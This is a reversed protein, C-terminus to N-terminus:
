KLTESRLPSYAFCVDSKTMTVCCEFECTRSSKFDLKKMTLTVELTIFMVDYFYLTKSTEIKKRTFNFSVPYTVSQISIDLHLKQGKQLKKNLVSYCITPRIHSMNQSLHASGSLLMVIQVFTKKPIGIEFIAPFM